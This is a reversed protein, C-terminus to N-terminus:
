NSSSVRAATSITATPCLVSLERASIGDCLRHTQAYSKNPHSKAGLLCYNPLAAVGLLVSNRGVFRYDGTGISHSTQRNEKIDVTHSIFRSQFGAVTTNLGIAIPKV